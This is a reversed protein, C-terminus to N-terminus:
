SQTRAEFRLIDELADALSLGLAEPAESKAAKIRIESKPGTVAEPMDELVEATAASAMSPMGRLSSTTDSESSSSFSPSVKAKKLARM